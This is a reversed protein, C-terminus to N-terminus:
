RAKRLVYLQFADKLDRYKRRSVPIEEGNAMHIKGDIKAINRFNVLYSKHCRFFSKRGLMEELRNLGMDCFHAEEMGVMRSYKKESVFYCIDKLSVILDQNISKLMVKQNEPVDEIMRSLYKGLRAKEAPKGLFGYVNRGFAEQMEEMHNTLFLIKIDEEEKQLMDKLQIGSVEGMGIDLLLIDTKERRRLFEKGSEYEVPLYEMGKEMFYERLLEGVMRRSTKEDDCIGIRIM